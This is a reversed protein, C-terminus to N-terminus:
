KSWNQSAKFLNVAATDLDHGFIDLLWRPCSPDDMIARLNEVTFPKGDILRKVTSATSRESCFYGTQEPMGVQESTMMRALDERVSCDTTQPYMKSVSILAVSVMMKRNTAASCPFHSFVYSLVADGDIEKGLYKAIDDVAIEPNPWNHSNIYEKVEEYKQRHYNATVRHGIKEAVKQAVSDIYQHFRDRVDVVKWRPEIGGPELENFDKFTVPAPANDIQGTPDIFVVSAGPPLMKSLGQYWSLVAEANDEGDQLDFVVLDKSNIIPSQPSRTTCCIFSKPGSNDVGLINSLKRAMIRSLNDNPAVYLASRGEKCAQVILATALTTKGSRPPMRVYVRSKSGPLLLPELQQACRGLDYGSPKGEQIRPLIDKIYDHITKGTM